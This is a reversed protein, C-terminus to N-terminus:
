DSLLLDRKALAEELEKTAMVASFEGEDGWVVITLGGALSEVLCPGPPIDASRGDPQRYLLPNKLTASHITAAMTLGKQSSQAPVKRSSGAGFGDM